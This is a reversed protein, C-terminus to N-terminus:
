EVENSSSSCEAIGLHDQYACNWEVLRASSTAAPEADNGEVAELYSQWDAAYADADFGQGALADRMSPLIVRTYIVGEWTEAIAGPTGLEAKAVAKDCYKRARKSFAVALEREIVAADVAAPDGNLMVRMRKLGPGNRDAIRDDLLELLGAAEATALADRAEANALILRFAVAYSSKEVIQRNTKPALLDEGIAASRGEAFAEAIATEWDEGGRQPLDDVRQALPRLATNWVWWADDWAGVRERAPTKSPDADSATTLLRRLEFFAAVRLQTVLVVLERRRAAPDLQDELRTVSEDILGADSRDLAADTQRVWDHLPGTWAARVDATAFEADGRALEDLKALELMAAQCADSAHSGLEPASEAQKPKPQPQEAKCAGFLVLSSLLWSRGAHM